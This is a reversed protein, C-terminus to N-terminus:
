PSMTDMSVVSSRPGIFRVRVILWPSLCASAALREQLIWTLWADAHILRRRWNSATVDGVKQAVGWLGVDRFSHTGVAYHLLGRLLHQLSEIVWERQFAHLNRAQEWVTAPLRPLIETTWDEQTFSPTMTHYSDASM